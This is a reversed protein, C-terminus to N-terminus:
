VRFEWAYNPVSVECGALKVRTRVGPGAKDADVKVLRYECAPKYTFGDPTAPAGYVPSPYGPHDVTPEVEPKAPALKPRLSGAAELVDAVFDEAEAHSVAVAAKRDARYQAYARNRLMREVKASVREGSLSVTRIRKSRHTVCCLATSGSDHCRKRWVLKGDVYVAIALPVYEEGAGDLFMRSLPSSPTLLALTDLTLDFESVHKRKNFFEAVIRVQRPASVQALTSM